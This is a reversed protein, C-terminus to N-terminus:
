ASLKDSLQALAPSTYAAPISTHYCRNPIHSRGKYAYICMIGASSAIIGCLPKRVYVFLSEHM